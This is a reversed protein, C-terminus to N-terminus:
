EESALRRAAARRISKWDEYENRHERSAKRDAENQEQMARRHKEMAEASYRRTGFVM